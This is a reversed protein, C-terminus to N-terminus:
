DAVKLKLKQNAENLAREYQKLETIDSIVGCLVNGLKDDQFVMKRVQLTNKSGDSATFVEENVIAELTKFAQEDMKKCVEAEFDNLFKYDIKGLLESRAKGMLSCFADNVLILRHKKDKVFVPTPLSNIISEFLSAIKLGQAFIDEM